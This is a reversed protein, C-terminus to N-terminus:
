FFFHLCSRVCLLPDCHCCADSVTGRSCLDEVERRCCGREDKGAGEREARAAHSGAHSGAHTHLTYADEAGLPMRLQPPVALPGLALPAFSQPPQMLPQMLPQSSGDALAAQTGFQPWVHRSSMLHGQMDVRESIRPALFCTLIQCNITM